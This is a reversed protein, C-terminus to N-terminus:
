DEPDTHPLTLDVLEFDARELLYEVVDTPESVVEGPEIRRDGLRVPCPVNGIYRAAKM